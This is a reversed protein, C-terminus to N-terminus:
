FSKELMISMRLVPITKHYLMHTYMLLLCKMTREDLGSFLALYVSQICMNFYVKALIGSSESTSFALNNFVTGLM